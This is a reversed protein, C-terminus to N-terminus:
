RAHSGRCRARCCDRGHCAHGPHVAKVWKAPDRTIRTLQPM